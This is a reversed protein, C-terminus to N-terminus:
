SFWNQTLLQEIQRIERAYMTKKRKGFHLINEVYPSGEWALRITKNGIEDKCLFDPVVAFGKGSRLCRLISGVNPVVYNPKFDPQGDFNALWFNRLHETDAATTFWVQEKLWQRTDAKKDSLILKDLESTDTESGCILV